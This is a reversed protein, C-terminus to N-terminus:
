RLRGLVSAILQRLLIPVWGVKPILLVLKGELQSSDWPADATNNNDGKTIFITKDGQRYMEMVRHLIATHGQRYRVIDGVRVDGPSVPRTIAIDGAKITPEMSIGSILAPRVGFLGANFWFLFVVFVVLLVWGTGSSSRKPGVAEQSAARWSLLDRVILLGLVPAVTGLFATFTWQLNPLIPSLWEFAALTGRYALAPLPGGIFALYTALLNEAATPLLLRGSFRFATEGQSLQGFSAMSLTVVTLLFWAVAVGLFTSRRGLSRVLYWRALELGALRTGVFWLNLAVLHTQRAYPSRGFGALLGALVFLAVQFLGALAAVAALWRNKPFAVERDEQRWLWFVLVGLSSWLVPQLVYINLDAPAVRSLLGNTIVFLLVLWGTVLAWGWRPLAPALGHRRLGLDGTAESMAEM